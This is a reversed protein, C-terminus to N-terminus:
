FQNGAGDRRITRIVGTGPKIIRNKDQGHELEGYTKRYMYEAILIADATELTVKIEPFLEQAKIKADRKKQAHEVGPSLLGFEAKWKAPPIDILEFGAMELYGTIIGTNKGFQFATYPDDDPRSSVQETGILCYEGHHHFAGKILRIIEPREKNSFTTVMLRDDHEIRFALAGHKGPDFGGCSKM